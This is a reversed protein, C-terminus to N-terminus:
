NTIKQQEQIHAIWGSVRSMAFILTFISSDIGLVHYVTASYFDVNPILGKTHKMYDEIERSLNFWVENETGETLAQAMERLYKERPDQTKIFVTVLAWSKKRAFRIKEKLYAKTDGMERIETLMDFVRENAGGHLPGKLRVM